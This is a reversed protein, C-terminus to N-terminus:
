NSDVYYVDGEDHEEHCEQLLGSQRHNRVNITSNTKRVDINHRKRRDKIDCIKITIQKIQNVLDQTQSLEGACLTAM